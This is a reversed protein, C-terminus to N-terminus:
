ICYCNAQSPQSIAVLAAPAECTSNAAATPGGHFSSIFHSHSGQQRRGTERLCTGFRPRFAASRRGTNTTRSNNAHRMNAELGVIKISRALKVGTNESQLLRETVALFSMQQQGIELHIIM